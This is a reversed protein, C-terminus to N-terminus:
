PQPNLTQPKPNPTQPQPNLTSPQPNPNLNQQPPPTLPAPPCGITSILAYLKLSICTHWFFRWIRSTAISSGIKILSRNSRALFFLSFPCVSTVVDHQEPRNVACHPEHPIADGVPSKCAQWALIISHTFRKLFRKLCPRWKQFGSGQPPISKQCGRGLSQRPPKRSLQMAESGPVWFTHNRPHSCQSM